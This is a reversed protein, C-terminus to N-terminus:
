YRISVSGYVNRGAAPIWLPEGGDVYGSTEYVSDL